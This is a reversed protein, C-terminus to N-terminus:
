PTFLAQDAFLTNPGTSAVGDAGGDFVQVNQIEWIARAGAVIAGPAVANATTVVSCTSGVTTSTTSACPITFAFSTNGTAPETLSPGNSKDTIQLPLKGQLEGTYDALGPAKNRVDTISASLRV